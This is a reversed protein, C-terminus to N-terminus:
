TGYSQVLHFDANYTVKESLCEAAMCCYLPCSKMLMSVDWEQQYHSVCSGHEESRVIGTENVHAWIRMIFSIGNGDHVKSLIMGLKVRKLFSTTAPEHMHSAVAGEAGCHFLLLSPALARFKNRARAGLAWRDNFARDRVHQIKDEPLKFIRAIDRAVDLVTREKQTGINYVEGTVGKHLVCDFASAVDEVYLYSRTAIGAHGFGTKSVLVFIFLNFQFIARIRMASLLAQQCTNCTEKTLQACRLFSGSKDCPMQRCM